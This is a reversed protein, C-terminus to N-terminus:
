DKDERGARSRGEKRQGKLGSPVLNEVESFAKAAPNREANKWVSRLKASMGKEGGHRVLIVVSKKHPFFIPRHPVLDRLPVFANSTSKILCLRMQVQGKFLGAQPIGATGGQVETSSFELVLHQAKASVWRHGLRCPQSALM